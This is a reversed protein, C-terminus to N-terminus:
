KLTYDSYIINCDSRDGLDTKRMFKKALYCAKGMRTAKIRLDQGKLILDCLVIGGNVMNVDGYGPKKGQGHCFLTREYRGSTRNNLLQLSQKLQSVPLSYTDFLYTGNNIADGLLLIRENQFLFTLCGPTHGAGECVEIVEGGLDFLDGAKLNKFREADAPKVWDLSDTKKFLSGIGAFFLKVSEYYGKRVELFRHERYIEHDKESMYVPVSQPFTGSGMAHDVHGHSILVIIPKDTLTKVYDHINGLGVGCDILAAKEDGEILYMKTGCLDEIQIIRESIPFSNFYKM